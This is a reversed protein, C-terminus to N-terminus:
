TLLYNIVLSLLNRFYEEKYIFVDQVKMLNVKLELMKKQLSFKKQKTLVASMMQLVFSHRVLM